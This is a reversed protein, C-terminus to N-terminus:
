AALKLAHPQLALYCNQYHADRTVERGQWPPALLASGNNKLGLMVLGFFDYLCEYAVWPHNNYILHHKIAMLRGPYRKKQLWTRACGLAMNTRRQHRVLWAQNGEIHIVSGDPLAAVALTQSCGPVVAQRWSNSCALFLRTNM